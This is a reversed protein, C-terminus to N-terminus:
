EPIQSATQLGSLVGLVFDDSKRQALIVNEVSALNQRFETSSQDSDGVVVRYGLASALKFTELAKDGRIKDTDALSFVDGQYWGRYMTM